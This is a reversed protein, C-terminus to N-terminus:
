IVQRLGARRRCVLRRVPAVITGAMALALAIVVLALLASLWLSTQRLQRLELLADSVPVETILRWPRDPVSVMTGIVEIGKRDPYVASSRLPLQLLPTKLRAGYDIIGHPHSIFIPVGEEDVIFSEVSGATHEPIQLFRSPGLVEV